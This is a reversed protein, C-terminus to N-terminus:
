KVMGPVSHGAKDGRRSRRVGSAGKKQRRGYGAVFRARNLVKERVGQIAQIRRRGHRGAGQLDCQRAKRIRWEGEM